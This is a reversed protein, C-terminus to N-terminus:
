LGGLMPLISKVINMIPGLMQGLQGLMQGIGGMGGGKGEGGGDSSGSAGSGRDTGLNSSCNAASGTDFQQKKSGQNLKALLAEIDDGGPMPPQGPLCSKGGTASMSDGFLEKVPNKFPTGPINDAQFPDLQKLGKAGGLPNDFNIAM